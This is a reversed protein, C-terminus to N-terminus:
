DHKPSQSVLKVGKTVASVADARNQLFTADISAFLEGKRTVVYAAPLQNLAYAIVDLRCKDCRCMEVEAMYRDTLESVIDENSNKLHYM